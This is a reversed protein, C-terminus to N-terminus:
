KRKFFGKVRAVASKIKGRIGTPQTPATPTAMPRAMLEALGQKFREAMYDFTPQFHPRPEMKSTGYELWPGLESDTGITAFGDSDSEVKISQGYEFTDIAPAEGPASAQHSGYMRGSKPKGMEEWMYAQGEYATRLSLRAGNAKMQKIIEPAHSEFKFSM